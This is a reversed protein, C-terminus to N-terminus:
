WPPMAAREGHRRPRPLSLVLSSSRAERGVLALKRLLGSLGAEEGNGLHDNLPHGVQAVEAVPSLNGSEPLRHLIPAAPKYAPAM